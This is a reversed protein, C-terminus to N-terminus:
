LGILIAILSSLEWNDLDDLFWLCAATKNWNSSMMCHPIREVDTLHSGVCCKRLRPAHVPKHARVSGWGNSCETM